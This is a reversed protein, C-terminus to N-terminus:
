ARLSALFARVKDWADAAAKQDYIPNSPNAFAHEADYRHITADVGAAKLGAELADVKDNPIGKDRTAFVGLVRAEITSLTAADTDFGGYYIIAGDLAPDAVATKFAWGGGFCWGIVARTTAQIRPDSTLFDFGARITAAAKTDDVSKVAKMAADRDTAVVGGYLDVALAAWGEAALRDAYLEIHDNKGWWEHIVIIAPFPGTGAPLSLYAQTGAVDVLTGKKATTPAAGPEAHLAKFEDESIGSM